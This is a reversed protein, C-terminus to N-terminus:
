AVQATDVAGIRSARANLESVIRAPVQRRAKARAYPLEAIARSTPYLEEYEAWNDFNMRCINDVFTEAIVDEVMILDHENLEVHYYTFVPPLDKKDERVISTGNVLAGAQILIDNIYVAHESSLLLDRTPMHDGLAGAKIRVPLDSVPDAFYTALTRRGVWCVPKAEGAATLVFDGRKLTEVPVDGNPTRVHTGALFCAPSGDYIYYEGNVNVANFDATSGSALTVSVTYNTGGQTFSLKSKSANYTIDTIAASSGTTFGDGTSFNEFNLGELNKSAAVKSSLIVENDGGTFDIVTNNLDHGQSDNFTANDLDIIANNANHSGTIELTGNNVSTTQSAPSIDADVDLTGGGTGYAVDSNGDITAPATFRTVTQTTGQPINYSKAM